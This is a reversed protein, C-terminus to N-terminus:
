NIKTIFVSKRHNKCSFPMEFVLIAAIDLFFIVFKYKLLKHWRADTRCIAM